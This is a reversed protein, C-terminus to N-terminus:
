GQWEIIVINYKDLISYNYELLMDTVTHLIHSDYEKCFYNPVASYIYDSANPETYENGEIDKKPTNKGFTLEKRMLEPYYEPKIMNYFVSDDGGQEYAALDEILFYGKIIYESFPLEYLPCYRLNPMRKGDIDDYEFEERLKNGIKKSPIDYFCDKIDTAFSRSHDIVPILKGYCDYIGFPNIEKTEKNQIGIYYCYHWSM